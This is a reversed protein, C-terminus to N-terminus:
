FNAGKRKNCTACELQINDTTNSGGYSYPYVHGFQLDETTGCHVCRGGDRTAVAIKVHQPIFRPNLHYAITVPTNGRTQQRDNEGTIILQLGTIIFVGLLGFATWALWTPGDGDHYTFAFYDAVASGIFVLGKAPHRFSAKLATFIGIIILGWLIGEAESDLTSRGSKGVYRAIRDADTQGPPIIWRSM